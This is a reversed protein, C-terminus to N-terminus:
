SLAELAVFWDPLTLIQYIRATFDSASVLEKRNSRWAASAKRNFLM